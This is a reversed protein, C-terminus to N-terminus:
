RLRLMEEDMVKFLEAIDKEVKEIEESLQGTVLTFAYLIEYDEDKTIANANEGMSKRYKFVKALLKDRSNITNPLGDTLPYELKLSSALVAKSTLLSTPPLHSLVHRPVFPKYTLM